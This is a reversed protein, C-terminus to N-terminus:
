EISKLLSCLLFNDDSKKKETKKLAKQNVTFNKNKLCVQFLFLVTFLRWRSYDRRRRKQM